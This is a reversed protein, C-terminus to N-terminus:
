IMLEADLVTVLVRPATSLITSPTLKKNLGLGNEVWFKKSIM